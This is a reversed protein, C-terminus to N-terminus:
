KNVKELESQALRLLADNLPKFLSRGQHNVRRLIGKAASPSLFYKNGPNGEDMVDILSSELPFTPCSHVITDIIEDGMAVGGSQWKIQSTAVKSKAFLTGSNLESFYQTRTTISTFDSFKKIVPQIGRNIINRNKIQKIREAIWVVVPVSVANGVAHYRLTDIDQIKKLDKLDNPLTWTPPFGQLKESESPTLRRVKNFYSVYTRSWDTGTHRGSTAALCYAVEPVSLGLSKSKSVKLFGDRPKVPKTSAENEHLAFVAKELSGKWACIYVRPRSQPVGFYRANFIRWSVGYGLHTLSEIIIKFDRGGHSSLLGTVNEIILVEPLSTKILDLFNYFLGSNKGNLGDRGMAGRAVSVDQCPFGGCWIDATPITKSSIKTIDSDLKIHPWHKELIQRCFNNIECQYIVEFGVKEFGLDFGGIGSFFSNVSLKTAM